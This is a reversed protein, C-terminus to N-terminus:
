YVASCGCAILYSRVYIGDSGVVLDFHRTEGSQFHVIGKDADVSAVPSSLHLKAPRGKGDPGTALRRLENHLDVRHIM